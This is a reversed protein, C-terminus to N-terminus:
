FSKVRFGQIAPDNNFIWGVMEGIGLSEIPCPGRRIDGADQNFLTSCSDYMAGIREQWKAINAPRLDVWGKGAWADIKDPTVTLEDEGRSAPIQIRPGRLLTKGDSLLIPIGISVITHRIPHHLLYSELEHSILAPDAAVVEKIKRYKTRLLWAEYLLKSLEPPGLKGLAVSPTQKEESLRQMEAIIPQRMVGARYSPDMIASDLAAIVEYRTAHGQIELVVTHAIEEPTLYEMQFLTTIAEFEGQTIFGVYATQMGVMSLDGRRAYGVDTFLPLKDGLTVRKAHFLGVPSGQFEIPRYDILRSGILAGIKVEKVVPAGPTRAMSFLLGTHGFALVAREMKLDLEQDLQGWYPNTFGMGGMGTLGIKLYLHTGVDCMAENLIKVHQILLPLPQYVLMREIQAITQSSLMIEGPVRRDRRPSHLDRAIAEPDWRERLSALLPATPVADVIIDPKYKHILDSLFYKKSTTPHGECLDAIMQRINEHDASLEKLSQGHWASRLFINGWAGDFTVKPFEKRLQELSRRMSSQHLSVIIITKPELEQALHRAVQFGLVGSGGLVMVRRSKSKM